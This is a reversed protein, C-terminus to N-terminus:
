QERLLIHKCKGTASRVFDSMLQISQERYTSKIYKMGAENMDDLSHHPQM